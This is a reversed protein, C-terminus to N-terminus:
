MRWSNSAVSWSSTQKGRIIGSSWNALSFSWMLPNSESTYQTVWAPSFSSSTLSTTLGVESVAIYGMNASHILDWWSRGSLVYWITLVKLYSVLCVRGNMLTRSIWKKSDWVQWTDSSSAWHWISSSM